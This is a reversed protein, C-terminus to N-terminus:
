KKIKALILQSRKKDEKLQEILAERTYFVREDRIKKVFEILIERGYISKNFNFIHAEILIREHTKFSPRKGVNAMGQYIKGQIGALVVYVGLSPIVLNDSDINATPFGLTKGRADGREVRGMISVRRGLFREAEKLKGDTIFQRIRTSSIKEFSQKSGEKGLPGISHIVNVKFGYQRGAEKFYDLTGARNQGFRFDDGVLVEKPRIHKVLYQKIFQSPTLRSFKKTFRIVLCVDVGLSEILHLRHSLSVMLPLHVEPHLIHVPHPFFTLVVTRGRIAEAKAAAKRILAQHGRHLGDFVGIVLVCPKLSRKVKGISYIVKM